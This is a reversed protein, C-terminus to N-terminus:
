PTSPPPANPSVSFAVAAIVRNKFPNHDSAVFEAQVTHPGPAINMMDQSTGYAMSILKGDLSVHIHGEDGRLVGGTVTPAVVKAGILDMSLTFNPPVTEDPTPSTIALRATTSPRAASSSGKPSCAGVTVVSALVLPFAWRTLRSTTSLPKSVTRRRWPRFLVLGILSGIGITTL